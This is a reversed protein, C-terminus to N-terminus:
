PLRYYGFHTKYTHLYSRHCPSLRLLARTASATRPDILSKKREASSRLRVVCTKASSDWRRRDAYSDAFMLAKFPTDISLIKSFPTPRPAM